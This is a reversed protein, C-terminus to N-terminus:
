PGEGADPESGPQVAGPEPAPEVAPAAAGSGQAFDTLRVATGGPGVVVLDVIPIETGPAPATQHTQDIAILLLGKGSTYTVPLPMLDNRGQFQQMLKGQEVWGWFLEGTTQASSVMEGSSSRYSERFATMEEDSMTAAAGVLFSRATDFDDNQMAVISQAGPGAIKTAFLRGFQSGGIAIGIQGATFLLGLVIGTIALGRGGVRGNSRGIGILGFIGLVAGLMPIGPLCCILSCVLSFIAALSTREPEAYIEAEYGGGSYPNQDM